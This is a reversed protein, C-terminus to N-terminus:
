LLNYNCLKDSLFSLSARKNKKLGSPASGKPLGGIPSMGAPITIERKKRTGQPAKGQQPVLGRPSTIEYFNRRFFFVFSIVDFLIFFFPKFFSCTRKKNSYSELLLTTFHVKKAIYRIHIPYIGVNKKKSLHSEKSGM